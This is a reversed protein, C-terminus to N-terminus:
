TVQNERRVTEKPSRSRRSRSKPPKSTQRRLLASASRELDPTMGFITSGSQDPSKTSGTDGSGSSRSRKGKPHCTETKQEVLEGIFALLDDERYMVKRRRRLFRLKGDTRARRLEKDQLYDRFREYADAESILKPLALIDTM